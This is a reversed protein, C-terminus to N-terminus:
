PKEGGIERRIKHQLSVGAPNFVELEDLAERLLGRLHEAEARFVMAADSLQHGTADADRRIMEAVTLSM